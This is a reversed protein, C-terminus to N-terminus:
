FLVAANLYSTVAAELAGFTVFELHSLRFVLPPVSVQNDDVVEWAHDLWLPCGAVKRPLEKLAGTASYDVQWLAGDPVVVM